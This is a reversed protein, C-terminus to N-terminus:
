QRASSPISQKPNLVGLEGGGTPGRNVPMALWSKSRLSRPSFKPYSLTQSMAPVNLTYKTHMYLRCLM